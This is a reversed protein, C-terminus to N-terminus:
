GVPFVNRDIGFPDTDVLELFELLCAAFLYAALQFHEELPPDVVDGGVEIGLQCHPQGDDRNRVSDVAPRLSEM